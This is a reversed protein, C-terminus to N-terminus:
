WIETIVQALVSRFDGLRAQKVHDEATGDAPCYRAKQENSISGM